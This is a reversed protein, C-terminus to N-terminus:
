SELKRGGKKEAAWLAHYHRAWASSVRGSLMAGWGGPKGLTTRYM